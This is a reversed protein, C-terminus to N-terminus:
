MHFVRFEGYYTNQTVFTYPIINFSSQKKYMKQLIQYNSTEKSFIYRGPFCIPNMTKAFYMYMYYSNKATSTEFM